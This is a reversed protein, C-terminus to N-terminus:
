IRNWLKAREELRWPQLGPLIRPQLWASVTPTQAVASLVDQASPCFPRQAKGWESSLASHRGRWPYSKLLYSSGQLGELWHLYFLGASHPFSSKGPAPQQLSTQKCSWQKADVFLYLKMFKFSFLRWKHTLLCYDWLKFTLFNLKDLEALEMSDLCFVDCSFKREEM